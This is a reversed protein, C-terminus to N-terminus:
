QGAWRAYSVRPKRAKPQAVTCGMIAGDQWRCHRAWNILTDGQKTYWQWNRRFWVLPGFDSLRAFTTVTYYGGNDINIQGSPWFILIDTDHFRVSLANGGQRVAYTNNAIKRRQRNRGQLMEDLKQYNMM